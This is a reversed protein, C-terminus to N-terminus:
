RKNCINKEEFSWSSFNAANGDCLAANTEGSNYESRQGMPVSQLHSWMSMNKKKNVPYISNRSCSHEPQFLQPTGGPAATSSRFLYIKSSFPPPPPHPPLSPFLPLPILFFIKSSFRVNRDSTSCAKSIGYVHFTESTDTIFVEIPLSWIRYRQMDYELSLWVFVYSDPDLKPDSFSPSQWADKGM